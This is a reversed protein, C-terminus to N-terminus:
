SILQKKKNEPIHLQEYRLIANNIILFTFNDALLNSNAAILSHLLYICKYSVNITIICYDFKKPKVVELEGDSNQVVKISNAERMDSPHNLIYVDLDKDGDM